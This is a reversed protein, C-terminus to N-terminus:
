GNELGGLENGTLGELQESMDNKLQAIKEDTLGFDVDGTKVYVQLSKAFDQVDIVGAMMLSNLVNTFSSIDQMRKDNKKDILLSNFVFDVKEDIGEILYFVSLLKTYIPRLYTECRNNITEDYRELAGEDAGMGNKLDGYLVGQMDLAASIQWMNNELLDSLGSLGSFNHQMYDDDKDLFTLSNFNRGWNVMELRKKLQENTAADQGMFVGRMGSMKIVEILSKDILSQISTILKDNKSLENLIHAGEAYGWGQLMGMKILKPATRGESRLVYKHHVRISTGNTFTVDYYKPLGFDIDSMETVTDSSPALGYWRDTIYIKMVKSDQVKSPQWVKYDNDEFNDFMMVGVAGGFLAGWQLLEIIDSRKSKLKQQIADSKESLNLTIGCRVEDQAPKDIAKRFVWSDNYLAIWLMWNLTNNDLETHSFEEVKNDTGIALLSNGYSDRIKVVSDELREELTKDKPGRLLTCLQEFDKMEM